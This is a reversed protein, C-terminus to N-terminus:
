ISYCLTGPDNAALNTEELRVIAELELLSKTSFHIEVVLLEVTRVPLPTFIRASPKVSGGLNEDLLLNEFLMLQPTFLLSNRFSFLSTVVKLSPIKEYEIRGEKLGCISIDM